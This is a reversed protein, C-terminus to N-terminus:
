ATLLGLQKLALVIDSIRYATAGTGGTFTSDDKVGTGAGATFGGATGTTAPKVVATAGYFGIRAVSGDGEIRIAERTSVSDSVNLTLRATRSADTPSVWQALLSAAPRGSTTDSKLKFSLQAGFGAVPSASTTHDVVLVQPQANTATDSVQISGGVTGAVVTLAQTIASTGIFASKAIGIGGALVVSGTGTSVPDDTSSVNLTTGTVKAITIGSSSTDCTLLGSVTLAGSLLSPDTSESRIAWNGTWAGGTSILYAANNTGVTPQDIAVGVARTITSGAGKIHQAINIGRMDGVTYAAAASTIGVHIANFSLTGASTSQAAVNIGNQTSGSLGNGAIKLQNGASSGGGFASIGDICAGGVVGLGGAIRVAGSTTTTSAQTSSVTLTTGTTKAIVMGTSGANPLTVLGVSDISIAANNFNLNGAATSPIIEFCDLTIHGTCAYWNIRTSGTDQYVVGRENGTSSNLFLKAQGAISVTLSDGFIGKKAVSLGGSLVVSATGLASADTADTHTAVGSVSLGGTIGFTTGNWTLGTSSTLSGDAASFVVQAPTFGSLSAGTLTGPEFTKGDLCVLAQGQLPRTGYNTKM